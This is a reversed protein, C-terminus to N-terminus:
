VPNRRPSINSAGEAREQGSVADDLIESAYHWIMGYHMEMIFDVQWIQKHSTLSSFSIGEEPENFESAVRSCYSRKLLSKRFESSLKELFANGSTLDEVLFPYKEIEAEQQPFEEAVDVFARCLFAAHKIDDFAGRLERMGTETSNVSNEGALQVIAMAATEWIPKLYEMYLAHGSDKLTDETLAAPDKLRNQYLRAASQLVEFQNRLNLICSGTKELDKREELVNELAKKKRDSMQRLFSCLGSFIDRFVDKWSLSSEKSKVEKGKLSYLVRCFRILYTEAMETEMPINRIFFNIYGFPTLDLIKVMYLDSSVERYLAINQQFLDLNKDFSNFIHAAIYRRLKASEQEESLYKYVGFFTLFFWRFSDQDMEKRFSEKLKREFLSYFRQVARCRIVFTRIEAANEPKPFDDTLNKLLRALYSSEDSEPFRDPDKEFREISYKQILEAGNKHLAAFDGPDFDEEGDFLASRIKRMCDMVDRSDTDVIYSANSLFAELASEFGSLLRVKEIFDRYTKQIEQLLLMLNMSSIDYTGAYAPQIAERYAEAFCRSFIHKIGDPDTLKAINLQFDSIIEDATQDFLLWSSYELIMRNREYRSKFRMYHALEHFLKGFAGTFDTLDTFSPCYVTLLKKKDAENRDNMKFFISQTSLDGDFRDPVMVPLYKQTSGRIGAYHSSHDFWDLIRQLFWSYGTLMKEVSVHSELSYLPTQFSQMTSELIFQAFSNISEIAVKMDKDLHRVVKLDETAKLHQIYEDFCNLAAEIQGCIVLSYIRADSIGNVSSCISVLKELLRMSYMLSSGSTQIELICRGTKWIRQKLKRIEADICQNTFMMKGKVPKLCINGNCRQVKIGSTDLSFLYRENIYSVYGKCIYQILTGCVMEEERGLGCGKLIEGVDPEGNKEPLKIDRDLKYRLLVPHIARFARESLTLTFDYRGHLRRIFPLLDPDNLVDRIESAAPAGDPLGYKEESKRFTSWYRNTLVGRLVYTCSEETDSPHGGGEEDEQIVAAEAMKETLSFITFTKYLVLSDPDEARKYMPESYKLDCSRQRLLTTVKFATEPRSSRIVLTFDGISLSEYICYIFREDRGINEETNLFDEMLIHLDRYFANYIRLAERDEMDFCDGSHQENVAKTDLRAMVEPTIFVEILSLYPLDKGFDTGSLEKTQFPDQYLGRCKRNKPINGDAKGNYTDYVAEPCYLPISQMAVRNQDFAEDINLGLYERISDKDVVNTFNKVTLTDFYDMALEPTDDSGAKVPVPDHLAERYLTVLSLKAPM